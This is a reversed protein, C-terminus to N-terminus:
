KIFNMAVFQDIMVLSVASLSTKLISALFGKYMAFVGEEGMIRLAVSMANTRM